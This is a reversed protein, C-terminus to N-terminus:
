HTLRIMARRAVAVIPCRYLGDLALDILLSLLRARDYITKRYREINKGRLRAYHNM